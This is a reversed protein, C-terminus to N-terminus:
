SGGLREAEKMFQDQCTPCLGHSFRAETHRQVFSELSVWPHGPRDEDRIKKCQACIPLLGQLTKVEALASDLTANREALARAALRLELTTMVQRALLKLARCQESTLQRTQHDLVCLTGLPLGESSELLAGAYFRLHPEGTVLPNNQFRPDQTTDPVVFLGPQLIAHRCISADLPTERVGLGVESKFWQRNADILNIVAIPAQCIHAALQTFDDFEEEVPTDLIEYRRLATLRAQEWQPDDPDTAPPTQNMSQNMKPTAARGAASGPLPSSISDEVTRAGNVPRRAEPNLRM